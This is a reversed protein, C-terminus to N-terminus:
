QHFEVRNEEGQILLLSGFHFSLATDWEVCEKSGALIRFYLNQDAM